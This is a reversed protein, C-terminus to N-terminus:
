AEQSGREVGLEIWHVLPRIVLPDLVVLFAALLETTVSSPVAIAEGGLLSLSQIHQLRAVEAALSIILAVSYGVGRVSHLLDGQEDRYVSLWINSISVIGFYAGLSLAASALSPIAISIALCGLLSVSAVVGVSTPANDAVVATLAQVPARLRTGCQTCISIEVPHLLTCRPCVM